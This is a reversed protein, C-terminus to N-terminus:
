FLGAKRAADVGTKALKGIQAGVDQSPPARVKSTWMMRGSAVDTLVMNAAYATSVGAGGVPVSVGVSGGVGGSHWGGSGGFGGIGFGVTPGPSVVTADPAITSVLIAKADASRAAALVADSNAAAGATLNDSGPGPVPTAGSAAVQASLQDQCVRQIATERANCVVLVKAGRLAHDAFRPDTWQAEINTSACGAVLVGVCACLAATALAPVALTSSRSSALRSANPIMSSGVDM